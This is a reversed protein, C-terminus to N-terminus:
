IVLKISDHNNLAHYLRDRHAEDKVKVELHFSIYRGKTSFRAFSLSHAKERGLIEEIAARVSDTSEGIVRYEWVCPYDIKPKVPNEM